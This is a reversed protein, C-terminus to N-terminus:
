TRTDVIYEYKYTLDAQVTVKVTDSPKITENTKPNIMDSKILKEKLLKSVPIEVTQGTTTLNEYDHHYMGMYTETALYINNLYNQYEKKDVQKTMNTITPFSLLGIICIVTIVALLEVMTFAKKNM